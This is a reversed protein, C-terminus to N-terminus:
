GYVTRAFADRAVQRLLARLDTSVPTPAPETEEAQEGSETSEAQPPEKKKAAEQPETKERTLPSMDYTTVPRRDAVFDGSLVLPTAPGEPGPGETEVELGMFSCYDEFTVINRRQLRYAEQPNNQPNLAGGDEVHFRKWADCFSVAGAGSITKVEPTGLLAAYIASMKEPSHLIAQMAELPHPIPVACAEELRRVYNFTVSTSVQGPSLHHEVSLVHGAFAFGAEGGDFAVGPFGPTVYPNFMGSVSLQRNCYKRSLLQRHCFRTKFAIEKDTGMGDRVGVYNLWRPVTVEAVWPGTYQEVELWEASLPRIYPDGAPQFNKFKVSPYFDVIGFRHLPSAIKDRALLAVHGTTNQIRVRTPVGKFAERTELRTLQSKFLVNCLPPVAETFLPKLCSSVLVGDNEQEDEQAETKSSAAEAPAPPGAPERGNKEGSSDKAATTEKEAKKKPARPGHYAPSTFFAAEYEMENVLFNLLEMASQRPSSETAENSLRWIAEANQMGSVMPFIGAKSTDGPEPWLPVGDADVPNEQDFYPLPQFRRLLRLRVTYMRYYDALVSNNLWGASTGDPRTAGSKQIFSYINQLYESPFRIPAADEGGALGRMFLIQPFSFWPTVIQQSIEQEGPIQSMAMDDLSTMFKIQVDNLIDLCGVANVTIERQSAANLYARHTIFGEFLLLFRPSEVMTERVFVHVPVRDMRGVEFLRPDAPLTLTATPPTGYSSSVGIALAPFLVGAIYLRTDTLFINTNASM